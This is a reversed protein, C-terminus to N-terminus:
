TYIHDDTPSPPEYSDPPLTLSTDSYNYADLFTASGTAAYYNPNSFTATLQAGQFEAGEVVVNNPDQAEDVKISFVLTKGATFCSFDLDLETSDNQVSANTVTVGDSNVISFPFGQTPMY